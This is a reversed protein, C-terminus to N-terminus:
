RTVCISVRNEKNVEFPQVTDGFFETTIREAAIGADQLAKAVREARKQSLKQNIKHTGTKKDAYGSITVLAEPYQNLIEVLHDIKGQESKKIFSKGLDFFINEDISRAAAREAALREAEAKEAALREAEAQEAALREAEAQEAALREAERRAAEEAALRAAEAAAIAAAKRKKAAGINFKLGVLAAFNDDWQFPKKIKLIDGTYLWNDDLTNFKNDLANDQLELTLDVLSSLRIDIGAGLRVAPGISAAADATALRYYAGAGLFLYPNLARVEKYRFINCIDITADLAAQAYNFRNIQTGDNLSPHNAFPGSFNARLGFVPTFDYGINLAANPINIHDWHSISWLNSTTYNAGGQVGLYWGPYFVDQASSAFTMLLVSAVIALTKKM